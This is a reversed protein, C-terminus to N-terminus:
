SGTEATPTPLASLTQKNLTMTNFDLVWRENDTNIGASKAIVTLSGNFEAEARKAEEQLKAKEADYDAQLRGLRSYANVVRSNIDNLIQKQADNLQLSNETM